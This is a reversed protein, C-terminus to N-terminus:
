KAFYDKVLLFVEERGEASYATLQNLMIMLYYSIVDRFSGTIKTSKRNSGWAFYPLANVYVDVIWEGNVLEGKLRLTYKSNYLFEEVRSAGLLSTIWLPIM